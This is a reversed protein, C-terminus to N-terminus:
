LQSLQKKVAELLKHQVKIQDAATVQDKENQQINEKARVIRQQALEIERHYRLNANKLQRLSGEMQRLNKEEDEIQIRIKERRVELAFDELVTSANGGKRGVQAVSMFPAQMNIPTNVSLSFAVDEGIQSTRSVLDVPGSALAPANAQLAVYTKMKRNYKPKSGFHTHAYSNWVRNVVSKRVGPLNISLSTQVGKSTFLPTDLTGEEMVAQEFKEKGEQAFVPTGLLCLVCVAISINKM